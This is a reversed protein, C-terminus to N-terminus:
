LAKNCTHTKLFNCAYIYIDKEQKMFNFKLLIYFPFYVDHIIAGKQLLVLEDIRGFEARVLQKAESFSFVM